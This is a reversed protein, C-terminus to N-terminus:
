RFGFFRDLVIGAASRVSLHNYGDVGGSIPAMVASANSLAEDHLGSGTGFLLVAPSGSELMRRKVSTWHSADDRMKATTALTFPATHERETIWSVASEISPCTKILRMAESRDPNFEAGYGETWHEAIRKAMARQEAIPTVIIYKKIGYTRCARAIDHVDLGTISTTCKAGNKDLVPYHVEIVYVGRKMWPMIGARAIVDPRRAVTRRVSEGLRFAKIAEHDGGLLVDPAKDGGFEAPRTYHPYDLMGSFFSDNKVAEDKGVVGSVLRAVADTLIAAPLEGGTIVFDGLSFEADVNREAFREDLGEYHGCVIILRKLRAARYFDEVTEQCLPTGQPSPAAVFRGERDAVADLAAELPGAMLVMGGGGFSYDDVQRYSGIGYDRLDIVSVDLKGAEIGRGLVSSSVCNRVLDPFATVISIKVIVCSEAM